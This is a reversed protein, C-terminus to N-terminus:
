KKTLDKFEESECTHNKIQVARGKLISETVKSSSVHKHWLSM